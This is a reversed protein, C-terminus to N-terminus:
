ISTFKDLIKPNSFFPNILLKYCLSGQKASDEFHSLKAWKWDTYHTKGALIEPLNFLETPSTTEFLAMKLLYVSREQTGQSIIKEVPLVLGLKEPGVRSAALELSEDKHLSSAPLGWLGSLKFDDDPRKVALIFESNAPHRVVLSVSSKVKM